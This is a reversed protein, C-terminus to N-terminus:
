LAAKIIAMGARALAEVTRWAAAESTKAVRIAYRSALLKTESKLFRIIEEDGTEWYRRMDEAITEIRRAVEERNGDVVKHLSERLVAILKEKTVSLDIQM